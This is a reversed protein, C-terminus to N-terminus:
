KIKYTEGILDDFSFTSIDEKPKEEVVKPMEPIAEKTEEKVEEPIEEIKLIPLDFEEDETEEQIILTPKPTEIDNEITIVPVVEEKVEEVVSKEEPMKEEADEKKVFVSSFVQSPQFPKINEKIEETVEEEIDPVEIRNFEEKISELETLGKEISDNIEDFNFEPIEAVNIPTKEEEIDKERKVNLNVSEKEEPLNIEEEDEKIVPEFVTVQAEKTEEPLKSEEEVITKTEEVPEEMTMNVEPVIEEKIKTELKKPEDNEKKFAEELEIKQLRKTEELKQDKKGFILVLVFLIVLVVIAITLYLTFNDYGYLKYIFDMM